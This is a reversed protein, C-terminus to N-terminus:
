LSYGLQAGKVVLDSGGQLPAVALDLPGALAAVAFAVVAPLTGGLAAAVGGVAPRNLAPLLGPSCGNAELTGTPREVLGSDGEPQSLM